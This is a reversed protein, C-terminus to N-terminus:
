ANRGGMEVDLRVADYYNVANRAISLALSALYAVALMEGGDEVINLVLNYRGPAAIHLLDAVIGCMVLLFFGVMVLALIGLDGTRRRHLAFLLLALLALAAIAWATIEGTDQPRLGPLANLNFNAVLWGGFREHYSSADDFWIFGMLASLFLLMPSRIEIFALFFLVSALFAMGYNFIEGMSRDRSLGIEHHIRSALGGESAGFTAGYLVVVFLVGAGLAVATISVPRDAVTLRILNSAQDLTSKAFM